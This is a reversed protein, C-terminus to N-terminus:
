FKKLELERQKIANEHIKIGRDKLQDVFVYPFEISSSKNPMVGHIQIM